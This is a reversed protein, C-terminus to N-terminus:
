SMPPAMPFRKRSAALQRDAGGSNRVVITLQNLSVGTPRAVGRPQSGRHVDPLCQLGHRHGHRRHHALRRVLSCDPGLRHVRVLRRLSVRLADASEQPRPSRQAARSALSGILCGLLACSNAWGVSHEATSTFYREYFPKAGGIVVWDYGFLLGGMAAVLAMGCVYGAHIGATSSQSGNARHTSGQM